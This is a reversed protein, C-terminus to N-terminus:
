PCPKRLQPAFIGKVARAVVGVLREAAGVVTHHHQGEEERRVVREVLRGVLGHRRHVAAHRPGVREPSPDFVNAVSHFGQRVLRPEVPRGRHEDRVEELVRGRLVLEKARNGTLQSRHVAGEPRDTQPRTPLPTQAVCRPTADRREAPLFPHQPPPSHRREHQAASRNRAPPHAPASGPLSRTQRGWASRGTNRTPRTTPVLPTLLGWLAAKSPPRSSSEGDSNPSRLASEFKKARDYVDTM